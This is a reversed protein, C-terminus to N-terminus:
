RIAVTSRLVTRLLRSPPRAKLVRARLDNVRGKAV